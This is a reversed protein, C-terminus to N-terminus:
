CFHAFIRFLIYRIVIDLIEEQLNLEMVFAEGVINEYLAGGAKDKLIHNKRLLMM